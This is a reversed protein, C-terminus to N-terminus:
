EAPSLLAFGATSLFYDCDFAIRCEAQVLLIQAKQEAKEIAVNCM